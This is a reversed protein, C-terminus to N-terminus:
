CALGRARPPGVRPERDNTPIPDVLVLGQAEGLSRQTPTGM